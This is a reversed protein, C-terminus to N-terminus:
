GEDHASERMFSRVLRKVWFRAVWEGELLELGSWFWHAFCGVQEQLVWALALAYLLARSVVVSAEGLHVPM